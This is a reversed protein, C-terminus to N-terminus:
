PQEAEAAELRARIQADNPRQELARGYRLRALKADGARLAIDGARVLFRVDPLREFAQDLVRVAEAPHRRREEAHRAARLAIPILDDLAALELARDYSATAADIRDLAAQADALKAHNPGHLPALALSQYAFDLADRLPLIRRHETLVVLGAERDGLAILARGRGFLAGPDTSDQLLALDFCHLAEKPDDARLLRLGDRRAVELSEPGLRESLAALERNSEEFRGLAAAADCRMALSAADQSPLQELAEDFRELRFLLRGRQARTAEGAPLLNQEALREIQESASRIRGIQELWTALIQRAGAHEAEDPSAKPIRELIRELEAVAPERTGSAWLQELPAAREPASPLSLERGPQVGKAQAALAPIQAIPHIAQALAVPSGALLAFVTLHHLM